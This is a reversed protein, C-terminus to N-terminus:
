PYLKNQNQIVTPSRIVLIDMSVRVFQVIASLAADPRYDAHDQVLIEVNKEYARWIAPVNLTLRVNPDATLHHEWM